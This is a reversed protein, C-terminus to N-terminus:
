RSLKTFDLLGVIRVGAPLPARQPGGVARPRHIVEFPARRVQRLGYLDLQAWVRERPSGQSSSHSENVCGRKPSGYETTKSKAM